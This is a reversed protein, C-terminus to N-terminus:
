YSLALQRILGMVVLLYGFLYFGVLHAFRMIALNLEFSVRKEERLYLLEESLEELEGDIQRGTKVWSQSCNMLQESLDKIKYDKVEMVQDAQSRSLVEGMSLGVKKLSQFLFLRRFIEELDNFYRNKKFQFVILFSIFGSIQLSCFYGWSLECELSSTANFYFIWTFSSLILFQLLSNKLTSQIKEEFQVDKTLWPRLSKLLLRSSLGHRLQLQRLDFIFSTFFKYQPLIKSGDPKLFFTRLGVQLQRGNSTSVRYNGLVRSILHIFSEIYNHGLVGIIIMSIVLVAGM